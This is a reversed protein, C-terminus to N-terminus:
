SLHNLNLAKQYAEPTDLDMMSKGVEIHKIFSKYKKILSKAGDDGDQMTLEHFYYRDFLVPPGTWNEDSQSIIIDKNALKYTEIIATFHSQNLFPQDVLTILVGDLEHHVKLLERVGSALSNGMGQEWDKNIHIDIPLHNIQRKIIGAQSGLVVYVPVDLKLLTHLQHEILTAEQWSLLQKARKMRSSAGAALLLVGINPM